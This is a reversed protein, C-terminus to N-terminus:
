GARTNPTAPLASTPRSTGGPKPFRPEQFRSIPHRDEPQERCDLCSESEVDESGFGIASKRFGLWHYVNSSVQQAATGEVPIHCDHCGIEEHGTNM